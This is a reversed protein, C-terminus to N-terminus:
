VDMTLRELSPTWQLSLERFCTTWNPTLTLRFTRRLQAVLRLQKRDFFLALPTCLVRSARNTRLPQNYRSRITRPADPASLKIPPVSSRKPARKPYRKRRLVVGVASGIKFIGAVFLPERLGWLNVVFFRWPNRKSRACVERRPILM